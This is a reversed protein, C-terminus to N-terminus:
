TAAGAVTDQITDQAVFPIDPQEGPKYPLEQTFQIVVRRLVPSLAEVRVIRGSRIFNSMDFSDDPGYLPVSFRTTIFQDHSPCQDTYCTFGAGKSNLDVMQGQSLIDNFNEAFWIPWTYCLRRETRREVLSSM